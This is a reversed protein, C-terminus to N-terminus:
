KGSFEWVQLHKNLSANEFTNKLSLDKTAKNLKTKTIDGSGGLSFFLKSLM